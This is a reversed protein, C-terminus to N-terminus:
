NQCEPCHYTGRASLKTKVITGRCGEKRCKKGERDYAFYHNQFKGKEGLINRYSDTSSGGYRIGEKLVKLVCGYLKGAEEKNIKKAPRSPRIGACFLSENAYINGVGSIKEQDMLLIKIPRSSNALIERFNDENLDRFPEPGLKKVFAMKEIEETDLVRIWGFKRLDAYYLRDGNSFEFVVHTHKNPLNNFEEEASLDKPQRKGRYILRGTMKPHLALSKGNSLDISLMKGFRRVGAVEGGIVEKSSGEFIKGTLVTVGSIELGSVFKGLGRKLTEVEPLEPM